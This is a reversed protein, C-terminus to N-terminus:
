KLSAASARKRSRVSLFGPVIEHLRLIQNARKLRRSLIIDIGLLAACGAEPFEFLFAQLSEAATTWM